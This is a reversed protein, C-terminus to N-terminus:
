ARQLNRDSTIMLKWTLTGATVTNKTYIFAVHNFRVGEADTSLYIANTANSDTADITVTESGDLLITTEMNSDSKDLTGIFRITSDTQNAGAWGIQFAFSDKGGVDQWDIQANANMNLTSM